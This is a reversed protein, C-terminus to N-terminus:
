QGRLQSMQNAFEADEQADYANYWAELIDAADSKAQAVAADINTQNNAAEDSRGRDYATLILNGLDVIATNVADVKQTKEDELDSPLPM